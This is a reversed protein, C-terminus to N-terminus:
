ERGIWPLIVKCDDTIVPKVWQDSDRIDGLVWMGLELENVDVYLKENINLAFMSFGNIPEKVEVEHPDGFEDIHWFLETESSACAFGVSHNDTGDCENRFRFFCGIM